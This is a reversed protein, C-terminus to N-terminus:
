GLILVTAAAALCLKALWGLSHATAIKPQLKMFLSNTVILPLPVMLWIQAALRFASGSSHVHLQECVLAFSACTLFPLLSAWAIAVSEGEGGPFRWIEPHQDGSKYLWDGMFLWDTLSSGVGGALVTLAFRAWNM